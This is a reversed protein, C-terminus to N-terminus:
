WAHDMYQILQVTCSLLTDLDEACDSSLPKGRFDSLCLDVTDSQCNESLTTLPFQGSNSVLNVTDEFTSYHLINIIPLYRPGVIQPKALTKSLLLLTGSPADLKDVRMGNLSLTLVGVTWYNLSVTTNSSYPLVNKGPLPILYEITRKDKLLCDVSSLVLSLRGGLQHHCHMVM